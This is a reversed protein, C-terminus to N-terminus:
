IKQLAKEVASNLRQIRLTQMSDWTKYFGLRPKIQVGNKLVYLVKEPTIERDKKSKFKVLFPKGKLFIEKLNALSAPSKYRKKLKGSSSYMETRASLPVSLQGSSATVIGGEEHLKAIKSETFIETGMNNINGGAPVLSVRKFRTFIGHHGAGRIGPPGQLREARFTKLLKRGLYDFADGLEMKLQMPALRITRELKASNIEVWLM